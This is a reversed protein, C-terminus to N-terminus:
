ESSDRIVAVMEIEIRYGFALETVAVASRPPLGDPGLREAFVTNFADWDDFSTLYVNAHVVTDFGAGAAELTQELNDLVQAVQDEVPATWPVGDPLHGATWVLNGAKSAMAYLGLREDILERGGGASAALSSTADAVTTACGAMAMACAALAVAAERMRGAVKPGGPSWSHRRM